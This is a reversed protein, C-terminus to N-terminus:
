NFIFNTLEEANKLLQRLVLSGLKDRKYINFEDYGWHLLLKYTDQMVRCTKPHWWARKLAWLKELSENEDFLEGFFEEFFNEGLFYRCVDVTTESVGRCCQLLWPSYVDRRRNIFIFQAEELGIVEDYSLLIEYNQYASSVFVLLELASLDENSKRFLRLALRKSRRYSPKLQIGQSVLERQRDELEQILLDDGNALHNAMRVVAREAPNSIESVTATTVNPPIQGKIRYECQKESPGLEQVPITHFSIKALRMEEQLTLSCCVLSSMEIKLTTTGANNM